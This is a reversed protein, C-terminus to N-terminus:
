LVLDYRVHGTEAVHRTESAKTTFDQACDHCRTHYPPAKARKRAAKPADEFLGLQIAQAKSIRPAM